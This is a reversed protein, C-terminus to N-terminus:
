QHFKMSTSARHALKAAKKPNRAADTARRLVIEWFKGEAMSPRTPRYGWQKGYTMITRLCKAVSGIQHVADYVWDEM